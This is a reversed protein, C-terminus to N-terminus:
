YKKRASGRKMIKKRFRKNGASSQIEELNSQIDKIDNSSNGM